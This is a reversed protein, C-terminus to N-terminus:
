EMMPTTMNGSSTLAGQAMAPSITVLANGEIEITIVVVGLLLVSAISFCIISSQVTLSYLYSKGIVTIIGMARHGFAM